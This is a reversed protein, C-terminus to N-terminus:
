EVEIEFKKFNFDKLFNQMAHISDVLRKIKEPNVNFSFKNADISINALGNEELELILEDDEADICKVKYKVM